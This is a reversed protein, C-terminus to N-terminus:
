LVCNFTVYCLYYVTYTQLSFSASIHARIVSFHSQTVCAQIHAQLWKYNNVRKILLHDGYVSHSFIDAFMAATTVLFLTVM